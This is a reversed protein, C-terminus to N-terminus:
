KGQFIDPGSHTRSVYLSIPGHNGHFRHAGPSGWLSRVRHINFEGLLLSRPSSLAAASVFETLRPLAPNHASCYMLVVRFKDKHGMTVHQGEMGPSSLISARSIIIDRYVGTVEGGHGELGSPHQISYGPLCRQSPAVGGDTGM